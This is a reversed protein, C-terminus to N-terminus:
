VYKEKIKKAKEIYSKLERERIHREPLTEPAYMLPVVALFLFFAAFSFIAYAPVIQAIYPALIIQLFGSLLYPLGGLAYYKESPGSYALDGWITLLFIVSFIGWAMGDVIAYIYWSWFNEAFIGLLAYGLGLLVFGAITMRKRGFFDSLFGGLIAFIGALLYEVHLLFDMLTKEFNPPMSSLSLTNVLSFMIWPIFYLLFPKHNFISTYSVKRYKRDSELQESLLFITLSSGRWVALILAQLFMNCTSIAGLLILTGVGNIFVIIGGIRARNEAVTSDSYYGM